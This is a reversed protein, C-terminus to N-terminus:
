WYLNWQEERRLGHGQLMIRPVPEGHPNIVAQHLSLGSHIMMTGLHYPYVSPQQESHWIRLAAGTPMSIPLTFTLVESPDPDAGAFVRQFQRDVHQSAIDHAFVPHPLHIHFGPIAAHGGPCVAPLGTAAALAQCCQELLGGFHKVLLRNNWQRYSEVRYPPHAEELSADCYAALGLTFFPLDPDRATWHSKLALVADTWRACEDANLVSLSIVPLTGADPMAVEIEEAIPPSVSHVM